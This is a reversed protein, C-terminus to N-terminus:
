LYDTLCNTVFIYPNVVTYHVHIYIYVCTSIRPRYIRYHRSTGVKVLTGTLVTRPRSTARVKRYSEINRCTRLTSIFRPRPRRAVRRLKIISALTVIVQFTRSCCYGSSIILYYPVKFFNCEIGYSLHDVHNYSSYNILRTITVATVLLGVYTDGELKSSM